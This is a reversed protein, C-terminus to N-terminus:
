QYGYKNSRYIKFSNWKRRPVEGEGDKELFDDDMEYSLLVLSDRPVISCFPLVSIGFYM